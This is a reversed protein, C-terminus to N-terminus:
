YVGELLCFQIRIELISSGKPGMPGMLGAPGAPAESRDKHCSRRYAQERKHGGRTDLMPVNDPILNHSTILKQLVYNNM